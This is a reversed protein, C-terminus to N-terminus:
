VLRCVAGQRPCRQYVFADSVPLRERHRKLGRPKGGARDNTETFPGM